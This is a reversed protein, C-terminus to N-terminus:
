TRVANCYEKMLAIRIRIDEDPDAAKSEVPDSNTPPEVSPETPEPAGAGDRDAALWSKIQAIDREIAALRDSDTPDDAAALAKVALLETAPNMGKLTPGAEIIDVERLENVGRSDPKEDRVNYGFSFEKVRRQSLLRYVQAAFPNDLDIQGRVKLGADTEEADAPNIAGIHADPNDWMHNWIVPIPDGSKQWRALSKTFAGPMVRDGGLDVNNFVSVIAEFEGTPEGGRNAAKFEALQFGHARDFRSM